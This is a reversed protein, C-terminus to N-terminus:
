QAVNPIIFTAIQCENSLSSLNNCLVLNFIQCMVLQRDDTPWSDASQYDTNLAFGTLRSDASQQGFTSRCDALLNKLSSKVAVLIQYQSWYISSVCLFVNFSAKPSGTLPPFRDLTVLSGQYIIIIKNLIILSM